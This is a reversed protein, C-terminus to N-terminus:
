QQLRMIKKKQFFGRKLLYIGITLFIVTELIGGLTPQTFTLYAAVLGYTFFHGGVISFVYTSVTLRPFFSRILIWIISIIAFGMVSDYNRSGIIVLIGVCLTLLSCIYPLFITGNLHICLVYNYKLLILKNLYFKSEGYFAWEM